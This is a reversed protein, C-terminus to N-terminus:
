DYEELTRTGCATFSFVVGPELGTKVEVGSVGAKAGLKFEAGTRWVIFNAVVLGCAPNGGYVEEFAGGLDAAARM